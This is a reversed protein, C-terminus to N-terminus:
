KDAVKTFNVNQWIAKGRDQDVLSLFIYKERM